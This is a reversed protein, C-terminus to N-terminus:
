GGRPTTGGTGERGKRGKRGEKGERGKGEREKLNIPVRPEGILYRGLDATSEDTVVDLVAPLVNVAFLDLLVLYISPPPELVLPLLVAHFHGPEEDV